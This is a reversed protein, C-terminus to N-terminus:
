TSVPTFAREGAGTLILVRVEADAELQDITRSLTERLDHSLANMAQPRNLTLLAVAGRREVTVLETMANM